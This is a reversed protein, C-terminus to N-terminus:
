QKDELLPVFRFEGYETQNTTGDTNKRIEIMTQVNEGVPIILIGGPKLQEVLKPPIFPAGATVIIKDFPAFNPQGIYGDGYFQKPMYGLEKLIQQSKLFLPRQREITFVKAGLECLVATQYGSGTGIELVKDGKKIHLLQTQFAVTFPQSITQGAAIPFAKDQYAFELFAGDMFLHRPINDIATLVAEDTIGKTRLYAVLEKRMGKHRFTDNPNQM